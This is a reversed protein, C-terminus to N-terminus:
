CEEVILATKLFTSLPCVKSGDDRCVQVIPKSVEVTLTRWEGDLLYKITTYHYETQKAM